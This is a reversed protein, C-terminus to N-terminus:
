ARDNIQIRKGRQHATVAVDKQFPRRRIPAAEAIERDEGHNAKNQAIPPEGSRAFVKGVNNLLSAFQGYKNRKTAVVANVSRIGRTLKPTGRSGPPKPNM